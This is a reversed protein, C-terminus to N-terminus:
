KLLGCVFANFKMPGEALLEESNIRLVLENLSQATPGTNPYVHFPFYYFVNFSPINEAFLYFASLYCCFVFMTKLSKRLLKRKQRCNEKSMRKNISPVPYVTCFKGYQISAEVVRWVTNPVRGFITELFPCLGDSLLSYLAPCLSDLVVKGAPTQSMISLYLSKHPSALIGTSATESTPTLRTKNDAGGGSSSATSNPGAGMSGSSGTVHKVAQTTEWVSQIQNVSGAVADTLGLYM